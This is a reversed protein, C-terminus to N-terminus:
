RRRSRRSRSGSRVSRDPRRHCARAAPRRPGPRRRPLAAARRVGAAPRAGPVTIAAASPPKEPISDCVTNGRGISQAILRPLRSEPVSGPFPIPGHGLDLYFVGDDLHVAVLHGPDDPIEDLLLQDQGIQVDVQEIVIEADLAAIGGLVLDRDIGGFLGLLDANGDLAGGYGGVLPPDLLEAELLHPAAGVARDAVDQAAHHEARRDDAAVHRSEHRAPRPGDDDAAMGEAVLVAGGVDPKGTGALQAEFEHAFIALHDLAFDIIRGGRPDVHAHVIEVVRDAVEGPGRHVIRELHAPREVQAGLVGNELLIVALEHDQELLDEVFLECSLNSCAPIM